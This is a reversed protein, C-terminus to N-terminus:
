APVLDQLNALTITRSGAPLGEPANLGIYTVPKTMVQGEYWSVDKAKRILLRIIYAASVYKRNVISRTLLTTSMRNSEVRNFRPSGNLQLSMWKCSWNGEGDRIFVVPLAVKGAGRLTSKMRVTAAEFPKGKQEPAREMFGFFCESVEDFSEGWFVNIQPIVYKCTLKSLTVDIFESAGSPASVIDGSHVHDGDNSRTHTFSLQDVEEFSEDLLQASLDYDTRTSKERWYVFFRLIDKAVPMISGRPMVGFGNSKSKDSLPIALSLAERNVVLTEIKPLRRLLEAEFIEFLKEVVDTSLPTRAEPTVWAKGERNVFIRSARGQEAQAKTVRNQLHERVSLIVRGSVKSIVEPLTQFLTAVEERSATRLIRDISRFLMGPSKELLGIVQRINRCRWAQDIKAALSQIRKEGRAVAFAEQAHKFHHYEHPHLQEGLRKWAESHQNIDGLKAPQIRIINDLGEILLRRIMRPLSAFKTAKALTADGGSLACALRLIDTPTDAIPCLDFSVRVRNIIALNERVPISKPQPDPLCITALSALLDRDSENLPIPSGALAYYLDLAEEHIPKGLDLVKIRDKASPLFQEHANVMEEYTHQYRGYGPLDLLNVFGCSLQLSVTESAGQDFLAATIRELWFETTDPVGAPFEKFYTNHDVHDGVLERVASLVRDAYEKMDVPDLGSLHSLAQQSLKFGVSMLASDLQRTIAQGNGPRASLVPLRLSRKVIKSFLEEM